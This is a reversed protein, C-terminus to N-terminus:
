LVINRLNEILKNLLNVGEDKVEFTVYSYCSKELFPNLGTVRTKTTIGTFNQVM